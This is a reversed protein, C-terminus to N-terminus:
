RWRPAACPPWRRPATRSSSRRSWASPTRSTKRPRCSPRSPGNRSRATASTAAPPRASAACRASPSRRSTTTCSSTRTPSARWRSSRRSTPSPASRPRWWRRPRAVPSCRPATRARCTPPRSRSPGSRTWRAATWASAASSRDNRRVEASEIAEFAARVAGKKTEDLGLSTWVEDFARGVAEARPHKEHIALAAALKPAAISKVREILAVDRGANPDYNWRPKGAKAALEKQMRALRKCEEHGFAIAELM